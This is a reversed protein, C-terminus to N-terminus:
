HQSGLDQFVAFLFKLVRPLQWIVTEVSANFLNIIRNDKFSKLWGILYQICLMLDLIIPFIVDFSSNCKLVRVM